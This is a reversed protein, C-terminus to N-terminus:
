DTEEAFNEEKEIIKSTNIRPRNKAWSAVQRATQSPCHENFIRHLNNVCHRRIAEMKQNNQCYLIIETLYAETIEWYQYQAKTIRGTEQVKLEYYYRKMSSYLINSLGELFNIEESLASFWPQGINESPILVISEVFDDKQKVSQDGATGRM